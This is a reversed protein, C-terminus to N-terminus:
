SERDATRVHWAVGCNGRFKQKASLQSASKRFGTFGLLVFTLLDYEYFIRLIKFARFIYAFGLCIGGLM